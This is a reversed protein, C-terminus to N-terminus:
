KEVEKRVKDREIDYHVIQRENLIIEVLYDRLHRYITENDFPTISKAKLTFLVPKRDENVDYATSVDFLLPNKLLYKM